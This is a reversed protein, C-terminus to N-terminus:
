ARARRTGLLQLLVAVGLLGGLALVLRAWHGDAFVGGAAAGVVASGTYYCLLYMSSAEARDRIAVEGLWGSAATHTTFFAATFVLLGVVVVALNNVLLCGLGALMGLTGGLLMGRRGGGAKTSAVTGALYLVFVSGALAESLGFHQQLYYGLYNYVSVFTGMALFGMAFLLALTPNRWHGLMARGESTFTLKKPHFHQQAPLLRWMAIACGFAPLAGALLAARWPLFEAAVAPIIRGALGGLSTGAIYIGMAKPAAAGLEESLWTMAVAPVGALLAGQVGRLVTLVSMSPALPVLLGMLTAALASTLLVRNRGYRESLVSAPVICVALAGTAASVTGAAQTATGGLAGSLSPLIAQTSYLSAFTALGALLLALVARREHTM